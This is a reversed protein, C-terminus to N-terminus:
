VTTWATKDTRANLSARRCIFIVYRLEHKRHQM